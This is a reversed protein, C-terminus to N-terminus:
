GRRYIIPASGFFTGEKYTTVEMDMLENAIHTMNRLVTPEMIGEVEAGVSKKYFSYNKWLMHKIRELSSPRRLIMLIRNKVDQVQDKDFGKIDAIERGIAKAQENDIEQCLFKIIHWMEYLKSSSDIELNKVWVFAHLRRRWDWRRVPSQMDAAPILFFGENLLLAGFVGPPKGIRKNKLTTRYVGCSPSGEMFVYVYVGADKLTEMCIRAGRKVRETIDEGGSTKVKAKGDWVDFGNGGTIRIASRPVGLGSMCEPCMPHWIFAEKERGFYTLMDWGKKNYRVQCGYMCASIGVQVKESIVSEVIDGRRM